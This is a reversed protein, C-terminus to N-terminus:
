FLEPELFLTSIINELACFAWRINHYHWLVTLEETCPTLALSM